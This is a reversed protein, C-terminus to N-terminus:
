RVTLKFHGNLSQLPPFSYISDASQFYYRWSYLLFSEIRAMAGTEEVPLVLPPGSPMRENTWSPTALRLEANM